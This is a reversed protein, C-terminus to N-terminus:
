AHCPHCPVKVHTISVNHRTDCSQCTHYVCQSTNIRHTVHTVHCKSMHSLCMTVHTVHCSIIHTVGFMWEVRRILMCTRKQIYKKILCHLKSHTSHINPTVCIMKCFLGIFSVINQLVSRNQIYKKILCLWDINFMVHYSM